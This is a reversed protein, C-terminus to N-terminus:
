TGSNSDSYLNEIEQPFIAKAKFQGDICMVEIDYDCDVDYKENTYGSKERTVNIILKDNEVKVHNVVDQYQFHNSGPPAGPTTRNSLWGFYIYKGSEINRASVGFDDSFGSFDSADVQFLHGKFIRNFIKCMGFYVVKRPHKKDQRLVYGGSGDSCTRYSYFRYTDDEDLLECYERWCKMVDPVPNKAFACNTEEINIHYRDLVKCKFLDKKEFIGM